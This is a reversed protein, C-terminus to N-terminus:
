PPRRHTPHLARMHEPGPDARIQPAVRLLPLSATHGREYNPPFATAYDKDKNLLRLSILRWDVQYGTQTSVKILWRFTIWAFPCVPDWFFEIDYNQMHQREHAGASWPEEVSQCHYLM